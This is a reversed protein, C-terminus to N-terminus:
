YFLRDLGFSNLCLTAYPVICSYDVLAAQDIFKAVRSMYSLMQNAAKAKKAAVKAIKKQDTEVARLVRGSADVLAASRPAAARTGSSSSTPSASPSPVLATLRANEVQLSAIQALLKAKEDNWTDTM